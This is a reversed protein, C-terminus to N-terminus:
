KKPTEKKVPSPTKKVPLPKAALVTVNRATGDRTYSLKITEGKQLDALSVAKGDLEIKASTPVTFLLSETKGKQTVAVTVENKAADESVLTGTLHSDKSTAKKTTDAFAFASFSLLAVTVLSRTISRM